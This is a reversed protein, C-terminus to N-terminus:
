VAHHIDYSSFARTRTSISGSPFPSSTVCCLDRELSSRRGRFLYMAEASFFPPSLLFLYYTPSSPFRTLWRFRVPLLVLSPAEPTFLQRDWRIACTDRDQVLVDEHTTARAEFLTVPAFRLLFRSRPPIPSPLCPM